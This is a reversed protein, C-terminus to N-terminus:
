LTRATKEQAHLEALRINEAKQEEIIKKFEPSIESGSITEYFEPGKSSFRFIIEAISPAVGCLHGQDFYMKGAEEVTTGNEIAQMIELASEIDAGYFDHSASDIVCEEWEQHREPYILQKGKEIWSPTSEIAIKKAELTAREALKKMMEIEQLLETKTHGTVKLYASNVTINKSYLKHGNFKVYVSEGDAKLALLVTVVDDLSYNLPLFIQKCM